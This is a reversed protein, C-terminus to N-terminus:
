ISRVIVNDNGSGNSPEVNGNGNPPEANGNLPANGNGNFPANGNGNFPGTKAPFVGLQVAWLTLSRKMEYADERDEPRDSGPTSYYKPEIQSIEFNLVIKRLRSKEVM